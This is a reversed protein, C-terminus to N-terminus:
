MTKPLRARHQQSFYAAKELAMTMDIDEIYVHPPVRLRHPAFNLIGTVGARVLADAVEQAAAAPVATIGVTIGLEAAVRPLEDLLYCRCGHIVRGAKAPDVDFAAVIALKPRRGAFYALIARGLNGIGVLAVQTGKADDLFRGIAGALEHRDYGRTTSGTYGISMLDRRVQVATSGALAALQHSFIYRQSEDVPNTLLRRYLSLRGITKQSVLVPVRLGAASDVSGVRM